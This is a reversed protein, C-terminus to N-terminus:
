GNYSRWGKHEKTEGRALRGASSTSIGYELCFDNINNFEIIDGNPSIVKRPLMMHEASKKSNERKLVFMCSEPSYIKNGAVKIDKDLDYDFGDGPHNRYYWEAFCQFDQWEECVECNKYTPRTKHYSDSYCRNMMHNWCDYAPTNKSNESPKYIGDGVYGVGLVSPKLKDKVQGNRIAQMRSVTEYGTDKFIVHVRKSNEYKKVTLKGSSNTPFEKGALKIM